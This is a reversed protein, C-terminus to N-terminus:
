FYSSESEDSSSKWTANKYVISSTSEIGNETIRVTSQEGCQCVLNYELGSSMDFGTVEFNNNAEGCESCQGQNVAEVNEAERIVM